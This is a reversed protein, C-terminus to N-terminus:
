KKNEWYPKYDPNPEKIIVNEYDPEEDSYGKSFIDLAFEYWDTEENEDVESEMPTFKINMRQLLARLLMYELRDAPNVVLSTM